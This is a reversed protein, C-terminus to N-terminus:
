NDYPFVTPVRGFQANFQKEIIIRDSVIKNQEVDKFIAPVLYKLQDLLGAVANYAGPDKVFFGNSEILKEITEIQSHLITDLATQRSEASIQEKLHSILNLPKM